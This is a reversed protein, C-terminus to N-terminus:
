DDERDDRYESWLLRREPYRDPDKPDRPIIVGLCEFDPGAPDRCIYSWRAVHRQWDSLQFRGFAAETLREARTLRHRSKAQRDAKLKTRLGRFASVTPMKEAESLAFDVVRVFESLQWRRCGRWFAEPQDKLPVNFGACLVSMHRDFELREGDLM